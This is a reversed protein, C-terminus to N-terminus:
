EIVEYVKFCDSASDYEVHFYRKPINDLLQEIIEDDTGTEGITEYLNKTEKNGTLERYEKELGFKKAFVVVNNYEGLLKVSKIM